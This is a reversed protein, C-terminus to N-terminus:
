VSVAPINSMAYDGYDQTMWKLIEEQYQVVIPEDLYKIVENAHYIESVARYDAYGRYQVPLYLPIDSDEPEYLSLKLEVVSNTVVQVFGGRALAVAEVESLRTIIIIEDDANAGVHQADDITSEIASMADYGFKSQYDSAANYAGSDYTAVVADEANYAQSSRTEFTTTTPLFTWRTTEATTTVDIYDNLMCEEESIQKVKVNNNYTKSTSAYSFSIDIAEKGDPAYDGFYSSVYIRSEAAESMGTIYGDVRSLNDELTDAEESTLDRVISETQLGVPVYGDEQFPNYDTMSCSALISLVPLVYLVKRSKM